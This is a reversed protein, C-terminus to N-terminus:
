KNLAELIEYILDFAAKETSSKSLFGFQKAITINNNNNSFNALLRNFTVKQLVKPFSSLTSIPRYNAM